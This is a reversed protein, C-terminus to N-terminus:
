ATAEKEISERVANIIGSFDRDAGGQEYYHVYLEHAHKGLATAVGAGDAARQSLGLDKVMLATAFGPDFDSNAPSTPVPGPVPCNTNLAWCQGTATSAVNFLAEHSVGLAEGLVFAESVGIMSIGLILNNCIKTAQGAGSAGCHVARKGMVNLIPEVSEFDAAEGGVMFTLTGATAGVVGGSVPADLARHGAKVALDRAVRSEGVEITSTDVFLTGPSAAELLGGNRYLDLVHEGSPLMTLVVEAGNCADSAAEVIEVGQEAAAVCASASLDFGRVHYGARSLNAAMPGGMNGLGIIGIDTM